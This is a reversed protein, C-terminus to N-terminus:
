VINPFSCNSQIADSLTMEVNEVTNRVIVEYRDVAPIGNMQRVEKWRIIVNMWQMQKSNISNKRNSDHVILTNINIPSHPVRYSNMMYHLTASNTSIEALQM